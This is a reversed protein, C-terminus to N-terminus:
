QQEVPQTLGVRTGEPLSQSVEILLLTRQRSEAAAVLDRFIELRRRRERMSRLRDRLGGEAARTGFLLHDTEARAAFTRLMSERGVGSTLRAVELAREEPSPTRQMSVEFLADVFIRQGATTVAEGPLTRWSGLGLSDAAILREWTRLDAKVLALDSRTRGRAEDTEAMERALDFLQEGKRVRAAWSRLGDPDPARGLIGRYLVEIAVKPKLAGSHLQLVWPVQSSPLKVLQEPPGGAIVKEFTTRRREARARADVVPPVPVDASEMSVRPRPVPVTDVDAVRRRLVENEQALAAISATLVEREGSLRYELESVFGDAPNAPVSLSPRLAQDTTLYHNLGDFMCHLYGAEVLLASAEDGDHREREDSVGGVVCVLPRPAGALLGRVVDPEAGGTNIRLVDVHELGLEEFVSVLRRRPVTLSQGGGQDDAAPPAEGLSARSPDLPVTVAGERDDAGIVLALNTDEPRETGFADLRGPHAAINVGRWGREYLARTISDYTPDSAGVDVYTVHQRERLARWLVVDEGHPAYSIFPAGMM